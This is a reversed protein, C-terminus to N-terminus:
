HRGVLDEPRYGLLNATGENTEILYGDNDLWWFGDNATEFLKRYRSESEQLLIEMEKRESIDTLMVGFKGDALPSVLFEFWGGLAGSYLELRESVGKEMIEACKGLWLPRICPFFDTLKRGTLDEKPRDVIAAFVSNVELILADVLQSQDDYLMQAILIGSSISDLYLRHHKQCDPSFGRM